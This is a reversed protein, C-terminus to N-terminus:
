EKAKTASASSGELNLRAIELPCTPSHKQRGHEGCLQCEFAPGTMAAQMLHLFDLAQDIKACNHLLGSKLEEVRGLLWPVEAANLALRALDNWEANSRQVRRPCRVFTAGDMHWTHGETEVTVTSANVLHKRSWDPM